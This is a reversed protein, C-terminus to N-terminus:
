RPAIGRLRESRRRVLEALRPCLENLVRERQALEYRPHLASLKISIGPNSRSDDANAAAAIAIIADRYAAQYREADEATRAAEGLMDYSYTYGIKEYGRARKMAAEISQGLVFQRGMERMARSVATRIVPEGLRKMAGRLTGSVGQGEDDLVRGTLMLAWTGANVLSSASHGLHRGWDAPRIKDEILADLSPADPVRLLAEALCMLATGEETSLGYEALFLEMLGPRPTARIESVLDAAEAVIRRRDTESLGAVDVLSRLASMEPQRAGHTISAPLDMPIDPAM